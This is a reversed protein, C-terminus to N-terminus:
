IRLFTIVLLNINKFSGFESSNQRKVSVDHESFPVFEIAEIGKNEDVEPLTDDLGWEQVAPIYVGDTNLDAKLIMNNGEIGGGREVALYIYGEGDVTIGEADPGDSGDMYQIYKPGNSTLSSMTLSGDKAADLVWVASLGNDCVYLKGDAFDLGSSNSDFVSATDYTSVSSDGPWTVTVYASAPITLSGLVVIMALAAAMIKRFTIM